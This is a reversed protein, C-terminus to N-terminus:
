RGFPLAPFLSVFGFAPPRLQDGPQGARIRQRSCSRISEGTKAHESVLTCCHNRPPSTLTSRRRLALSQILLVILMWWRREIM